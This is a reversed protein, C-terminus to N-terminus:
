LNVTRMSHVCPIHLASGWVPLPAGISTCSHLDVTSQHQTKAQTILNSMMARSHLLSSFASNKRPAYEWNRMDELAIPISLQSQSASSKHSSAARSELHPVSLFRPREVVSHVSHMPPSFGSSAPARVSKKGPIQRSKPPPRTGPPRMVSLTYIVVTCCLSADGNSCSRSTPLGIPTM